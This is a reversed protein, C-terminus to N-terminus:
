IHGQNINRVQLLSGQLHENSLVDFKKIWFTDYAVSDVALPYARGRLNSHSGPDCLRLVIYGDWCDFVRICLAHEMTTQIITLM